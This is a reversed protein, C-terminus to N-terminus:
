ICLFDGVHKENYKRRCVYIARYIVFNAGHLLLGLSRGELFLTIIFVFQGRALLYTLCKCHYTTFFRLSRVPPRLPLVMLFDSSHCCKTLGCDIGGM